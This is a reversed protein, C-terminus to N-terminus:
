RQHEMIEAIAWLAMKWLRATHMDSLAWGRSGGVSCLMRLPYTAGTEPEVGPALILIPGLREAIERPNATLYDQTNL